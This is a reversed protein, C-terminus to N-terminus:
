GPPGPHGLSALQRAHTAVDTALDALQTSHEALTQAVDATHAAFTAALGETAATNSEVARILRLIRGGTRWLWRITGGVVALGGLLGVLAQLGTM